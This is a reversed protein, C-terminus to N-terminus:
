TTVARAFPTPENLAITFYGTLTAMLGRILVAPYRSGASTLPLTITDTTNLRGVIPGNSSSPITLWSGYRAPKM